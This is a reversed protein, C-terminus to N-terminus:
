SAGLPALRRYIHDIVRALPYCMIFYVIMAATYLEFPRFTL